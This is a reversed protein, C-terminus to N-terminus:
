PAGGFLTPHLYRVLAAVGVGIAVPVAAERLGRAAGARTFPLFPTQAHFRRFAEGATRLKRRDQHLCGILAFLPFGAFFALEAAHVRAALLHALGFLGAGMFTPHRTVRYIGSVEASAGPVISAPSPRALAAAVLALAVGMLAYMPWRVGPRWGVYWLLPGAHKHAFYVWVLPVFFALAVLSYVGAFAREGLAGVLRPRLRLSSLGMHSAAFGVWLAAIALTVDM